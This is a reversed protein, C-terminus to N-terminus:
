LDIVDLYTDWEMNYDNAIKEIRAPKYVYKSLEMYFKEGKKKMDKYNYDFSSIIYKLLQNLETIEELWLDM